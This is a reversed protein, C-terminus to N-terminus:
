RGSRNLEALRATAYNMERIAAGIRHWVSGARGTHAPATSATLQTRM